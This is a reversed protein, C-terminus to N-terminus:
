RSATYEEGTHDMDFIINVTNSYKLVLFQGCDGIEWYPSDTSYRFTTHNLYNMHKLIIATSVEWFIFFFFFTKFQLLEFLHFKM